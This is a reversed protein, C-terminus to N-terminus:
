RDGGAVVDLQSDLATIARSLADLDSPTLGMLAPTLLEAARRRAADLRQQGAPTVTFTSVRRDHPDRTRLVLGLRELKALQQSGAPQTCGYHRAFHSVTVPANAQVVALSPVETGLAELRADRALVRLTRGAVDVLNATLTYSTM